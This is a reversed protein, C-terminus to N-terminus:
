SIPGTVRVRRTKTDPPPTTAPKRFHNNAALLVGIVILMTCPMLVLLLGRHHDTFRLSWADTTGGFLSALQDFATSAGILERMLGTVLLALIIQFIPQLAVRWTPTAEARSMMLGYVSFIALPLYAHLAAFFVPAFAALLMDAIGGAAAAILLLLTDRSASAIHAPMLLRAVVTLPLAITVCIGALALASGFSAALLLLPLAALLRLLNVDNAKNM